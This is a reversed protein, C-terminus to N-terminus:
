KYQSPQAEITWSHGYELEILKAQLSDIITDLEESRTVVAEAYEKWKLIEDVLDNIVTVKDQELNRITVNSTTTQIILSASLVAIVAILSYFYKKM